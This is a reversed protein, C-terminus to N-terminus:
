IIVQANEETTVWESVLTANGSVTLNFGENVVVHFVTQDTNIECDNAIVVAEGSAPLTEPNIAWNSLNAWQNNESGVFRYLSSYTKPRSEQTGCHSCARIELGDHTEDPLVATQWEGWTHETNAASLLQGM